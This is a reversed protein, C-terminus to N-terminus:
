GAEGGHISNGPCPLPTVHLRRQCGSDSCFPTTRPALNWGHSGQPKTGLVKSELGPDGKWKRETVLLIVLSLGHVEAWGHPSNSSSAELHRTPTPMEWIRTPQLVLGRAGVPLLPQLVPHSSGPPCSVAAQKLLHPFLLPDMKCVPSPAHLSNFGSSSLFILFPPQLNLDACLPRFKM